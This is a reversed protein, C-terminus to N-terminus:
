LDTTIKRSNEGLYELDIYKTTEPLISTIKEPWEILVLYNKRSFYEPLGVGEADNEDKMRYCDVHILQEINGGYDTKYSKLIVFTPSTINKKIGLGKALGKAFTTKGAGLNGSLAM